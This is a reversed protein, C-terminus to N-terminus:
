LPGGGEGVRLSSGTLIAMRRNIGTENKRPTGCGYDRSKAVTSPRNNRREALNKRGGVGLPRWLRHRVRPNRLLDFPGVTLSTLSRDWEPAATKTWSVGDPSVLLLSEPEDSEETETHVSREFYIVWQGNSWGALTDDVGGWHAALPLPPREVTGNTPDIVWVLYQDIRPIPQPEDGPDVTEDELTASGYASAVVLVESQNSAVALLDTQGALDITDFRILDWEGTRPDGVWVGLNVRDLLAVHDDTAAIVQAGTKPDDGPGPTYATVQRLPDADLWEVGDSSWFVGWPAEAVVVFGGGPVAEIDVISEIWPEGSAVQEWGGPLDAEGGATTTSPPETVPPTTPPQDVMSSSNGGWILAAIGVSVLVVVFAAALAWVRTRRSRIPAGVAMKTFEDTTVPIIVQEYYDRIQRELDIM